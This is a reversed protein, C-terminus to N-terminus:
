IDFPSPRTAFLVGGNAGRKHGFNQKCGPCFVHTDSSGLPQLIFKQGQEYCAHCLYHFPEGKPDGEKLALVFGGMSLRTLQYRQAEDNKAQTARLATETQHLRDVLELHAVQVQLLKESLTGLLSVIEDQKAADPAGRLSDRVKKAISIGDKLVGGADRAAGVADTITALDVGFVNM